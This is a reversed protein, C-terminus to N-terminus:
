YLNLINFLIELNLIEYRDAVYMSLITRETASPLSVLFKKISNILSSFSGPDSHLKKIMVTMKLIIKREKENKDNDDDDDDDDDNNNDDFNDDNIDNDDNDTNDAASRNKKILEDDFDECGCASM